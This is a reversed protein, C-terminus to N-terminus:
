RGGALHVRARESILRIPAQVPVKLPRNTILIPLIFQSICM